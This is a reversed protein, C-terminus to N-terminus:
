RFWYYHEALLILPIIVTLMILRMCHDEILWAWMGRWTARRVRYAIDQMLESIFLRLDTMVNQLKIITTRM